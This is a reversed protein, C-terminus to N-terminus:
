ATGTCLLRHPFRNWDDTVIPSTEVLDASTDLRILAGPQYLTLWFSDSAAVVLGGPKGPM